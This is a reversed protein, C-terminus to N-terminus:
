VTFIFERSSTEGEQPYFYLKRAAIDYISTHTTHWTGNFGLDRNRNAYLIDTRDFTPGFHDRPSTVSLYEERGEAEAVRDKAGVFETYWKNTRDYAKSYWVDKMANLMGNKTNATAYDDVLINYRELGAGHSTINSANNASTDVKGNFLQTGHLYFNTMISAKEFYLENNIFEVIYTDTADGIMYHTEYGGLTPSNSAYISYHAKLDTIAELATSYNDLVFRPLMSMCLAGKKTSTPTTGLTKGKDGGPVVNVNIFLGKENIGDVLMFPFIKFAEQYTGSDVAAMSLLPNCSAAGISAFRDTTKTTRIIFEADHNYYWDLNRGYFNGNRMSSCAPALSPNFRNFYDTAYSYDLESCTAEYLYDALKTISNFPYTDSTNSQLVYLGYQIRKFREFEETTYTYFLSPNEPTVGNEKIYKSIEHDAHVKKLLNIQNDTLSFEQYSLM